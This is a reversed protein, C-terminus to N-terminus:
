PRPQRPRQPPRGGPLVTLKKIDTKLLVESLSKGEALYEALGPTESFGLYKHVSPKRIDGDVLLVHENINQRYAETFDLELDFNEVNQLM